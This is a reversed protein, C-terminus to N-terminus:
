KPNVSTTPTFFKHGDGYLLAELDDDGVVIAPCYGKAQLQEIAVLKNPGVNRTGIVIADTNKTPSQCRKAGMMEVAREVDKRGARFMGTVVVKKGYLPNGEGTDLRSFDVGQTRGESARDGRDFVDILQPVAGDYTSALEAFADMGESSDDNYFDSFSGLSLVVKEQRLKRLGEESTPVGAWEPKEGRIHRIIIEACMAADAEADHHNECPIGLAMCCMELGNGKGPACDDRQYLERSDYVNIHADIGFRRLNKELVPQEVSTANHAWVESGLLYPEVEPWVEAFTPACATDEPTIHHVRVFLEEYVNGPPQILWNRREVIELDRVVALGIQCINQASDAYEVDIAVFSPSPAPTKYFLNM